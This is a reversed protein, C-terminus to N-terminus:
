SVFSCLCRSYCSNDTFFIFGTPDAFRNIIGCVPFYKGSWGWYRGLCLDAPYIYNRCSGPLNNALFQIGCCAKKEKGHYRYQLM